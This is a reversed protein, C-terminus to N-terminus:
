LISSAPFDVDIALDTGDVVDIASLPKTVSRAGSAADVLTAEATYSGEPLALTLSFSGCPEEASTVESGSADYVVLEVSSAGYADCVSSDTTGAVLWRLTLTGTTEGVSVPPLDTSAGFGVTCGASTAALACVSLPIALVAFHM